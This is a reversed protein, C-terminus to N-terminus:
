YSKKRTKPVPIACGEVCLACLVCLFASVPSLRRRFPVAKLASCASFASPSQPSHRFGLASHRILESIRIVVPLCVAHRPSQVRRRWPRGSRCAPKPPYVKSRLSQVATGLSQVKSKLGQVANLRTPPGASPGQPFPEKSPVPVGFPDLPLCPGWPPGVAFLSGLPTWRRVLVGLPDLPLCPGWPPGVAFLSGLPTWRRVLVGLPDLPSCPSIPFAFDTNPGGFERRAPM